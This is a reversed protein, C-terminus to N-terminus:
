RKGHRATRPRRPPRLRFLRASHLVRPPADRREPPSCEVPAVGSFSARRRARAPSEVRRWRGTVSRDHASQLSCNTTAHLVDDHALLLPTAGRALVARVERGASPRPRSAAAARRRSPHARTGPRGPIAAAPPPAAEARTCCAGTRDAVERAASGTRRRGSRASGSGAAGNASDRTRHMPLPTLAITGGRRRVERARRVVGQM